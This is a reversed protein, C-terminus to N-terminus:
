TDSDYGDEEQCFRQQDGRLILSAWSMGSNRGKAQDFDTKIGMSQIYTKKASPRHLFWIYDADQEIAGSDRLDSMQPKRNEKEGARSLQSLMLGRVGNDMLALKWARSLQSIAENRNSAKPAELLQLYDCCVMQAGDAAAERIRASLSEPGNIGKTIFRINRCTHRVDPECALIQHRIDEPVQDPQRVAQTTPTMSIYAIIRAAIARAEMEKSILMTRIGAKALEALIQVALATKGCSPRAALVIYDGPVLGKHARDLWPIGLFMTDPAQRRERLAAFIDSAANILQDAERQRRDSYQADIDSVLRRLLEAQELADAGELVKQHSLASLERKKEEGILKKLECLYYGVNAGTPVTLPLECISAAQKKLRHYLTTEDIPAGDADLALMAEYVTRNFEDSFDGSGIDVARLAEPRHIISGLVQRELLTRM